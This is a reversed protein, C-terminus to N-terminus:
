DADYNLEIHFIDQEDSEIIEAKHFILQRGDDSVGFNVEVDDNLTKLIRKLVGVTLPGGMVGYIPEDDNQVM